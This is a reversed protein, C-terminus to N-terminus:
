HRLYGARAFLYLGYNVFGVAVVTLLISGSPLGALHKLAGDLGGAQSADTFVAAAVFLLGVVVLALGKTVHGIVGFIRVVTDMAGSITALDERFNQSAGRFILGGGLGGVVGGLTILVLIGGPTAIMESSFIQANRDADSHGGAAFVMATIGIGAYGLSKGVDKLRRWLLTTRSPATVRAADTLQWVALGLLGGAAGWVLLAGGWNATLAALAGAQDAEGEGTWALRLAILGIMGHVVGTAALGSRAFNRVTRNQTAHQAAEKARIRAEARRDAAPTQPISEGTPPSGAM